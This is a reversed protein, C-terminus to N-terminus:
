AAQAELPRRYEAIRKQDARLVTIEAARVLLPRRASPAPRGKRTKGTLLEDCKSDLRFDVTGLLNYKVKAPLNNFLTQFSKESFRNYNLMGAEMRAKIDEENDAFMEAFAQATRLNEDKLMAELDDDSLQVDAPDVGAHAALVARMEAVQNARVAQPIVQKKWALIGDVSQPIPWKGGSATPQALKDLEDNAAALLVCWEVFGLPKDHGQEERAENGLESDEVSNAYDSFRDIAPTATIHDLNSDNDSAQAARREANIEGLAKAAAINGANFAIASVAIDYGEKSLNFDIM